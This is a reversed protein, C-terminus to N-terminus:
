SRRRLSSDSEDTRNAGWEHHRPEPEVAGPGIEATSDESGCGRWRLAVRM